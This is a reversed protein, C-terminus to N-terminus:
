SVYHNLEYPKPAKYGRNYVQISLRKKVPSGDAKTLQITHSTTKGEGPKGKGVTVQQHYDDADVKYGKKEVAKQVAASYTSYYLEPNDKRRAEGLMELDKKTLKEFKKGAKKLDEELSLNLDWPGHHKNKIMKIMAQTSTYRVYAGPEKKRVGAIAYYASRTMYIDNGNSKDIVMNGKECWAHGFRRGKLKGQGYVLAHVVDYDMNATALRNATSFCDGTGAM